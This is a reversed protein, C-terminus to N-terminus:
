LTEVAKHEISGWTKDAKALINEKDKKYEEFVAANVFLYLKGDVIDAYQPDGDFKKGLAVAYACFGGYQPLFNEPDKEFQDKSAQSAFYYAGGEHVVTFAATGASAFGTTALTVADAGHLGLPVGATTIGSSLNYEDAALASASLVMAAGFTMLKKM